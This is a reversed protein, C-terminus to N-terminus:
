VADRKLGKSYLTDFAQLPTASQNLITEKPILPLLPKLMRKEETLNLANFSLGMIAPPQDPFHRTYVCIHTPSSRVFKALVTGDNLPKRKVQEWDSRSMELSHQHTSPLGLLRSMSSKVMGKVANSLELLTRATPALNKQATQRNLVKRIKPTLPVEPEFWVTGSRQPTYQHKSKYQPPKSITHSTVSGPM